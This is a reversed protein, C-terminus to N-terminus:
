PTPSPTPTPLHYAYDPILAVTRKYAELATQESNFYGSLMEQLVIPMVREVTMHSILAGQGQRFGWRNAQAIGQRLDDVLTAPYFDLLTHDSGAIPLTLWADAFMMPEDVTGLRLPVKRESELGLWPLYAQTFWYAAFTEAAARNARTTIGLVTIQSYSSSVAATGGGRLSTVFGSSGALYDGSTCEACTPTVAPDLGALIPLLAPSSMILGTRGELYANRASTDTQVDSPSFRNILDRYFDFAEVCTPEMITVEGKGDILQCGNATAFQEFVQQTSLLDSETPVVVGSILDDANYIAQADSIISTYDVPPPLSRAAYWDARYVLLQKWGDSPLATLVDTQPDRLLDLAEADFTEAGLEQLVAQAAQGDLIGDEYWGVTYDIPHLILDPLTDSLVATNLFEPLLKPAVHVVDVHIPYSESFQGAIQKMLAIHAPSTENIWITITPHTAAAQPSDPTGTPAPSPLLPPAPTPPPAAAASATETAARPPTFIKEPQCASLAALLCLCLLLALRLTPSPHTLLSYTKRAPNTTNM